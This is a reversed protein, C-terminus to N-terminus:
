ITHGPGPTNFVCSWIRMLEMYGQFLLVGAMLIFVDEGGTGVLFLYGSVMPCTSYNPVM